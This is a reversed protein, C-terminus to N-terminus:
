RTMSNSPARSDATNTKRRRVMTEDKMERRDVEDERGEKDKKTKESRAENRENQEREAGARKENQENKLETCKREKSNSELQERTM